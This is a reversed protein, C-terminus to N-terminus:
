NPDAPNILWRGITYYNCLARAQYLFRASATPDVRNEWESDDVYGDNNLDNALNWGRVQYYSQGNQSVVQHDPLAIGATRLENVGPATVLTQFHPGVGDTSVRDLRIWYQNHNQYNTRVWDSPPVFSIAGKTQQGATTDSTLTLDHWESGNWYRWVGEWDSSAATSININVTAFRDIHGLWLSNTASDAYATEFPSDVRLSRDDGYARSTIEQEGLYVRSLKDTKFWYHKNTPILLEFDHNYHLFINEFNNQQRVFNEYVTDFVDQGTNADNAVASTDTFNYYFYDHGTVNRNGMLADLHKSAWEAYGPKHISNNLFMGFTRLSPFHQGTTVQDASIPKRSLRHIYFAVLLLLVLVLVVIFFYKRKM